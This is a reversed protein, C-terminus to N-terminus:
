RDLQERIDFLRHYGDEGAPACGRRFFDFGLDELRLLARQLAQAAHLREVGERVSAAGEEVQLEGDAGVHLGRHEFDDAAHVLQRRQRAIRLRRLDGEAFVAAVAWCCATM